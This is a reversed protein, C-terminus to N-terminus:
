NFIYLLGQPFRGTPLNYASAMVIMAALVVIVAVKMKGTNCTCFLTHILLQPCESILFPVTPVALQSAKSVPCM